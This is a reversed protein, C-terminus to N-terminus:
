LRQFAAKVFRGLANRKPMAPRARRYTIKRRKRKLLWRAIRAKREEPTYKGICKMNIRRAATTKKPTPVIQRNHVWVLRKKLFPFGKILNPEENKKIIPQTSTIFQKWLPIPHTPTSPVAVEDSGLEKWLIKTPTSAHGSREYSSSIEDFLEVTKPLSVEQNKWNPSEISTRVEWDM